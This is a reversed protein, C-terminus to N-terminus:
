SKRKAKRIKNEGKEAYMYWDPASSATNQANFEKIFKDRAKETKFEKVEDVRQGWGRESEILVATYLVEAIM